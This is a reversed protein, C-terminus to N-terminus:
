ILFKSLFAALNEDLKSIRITKMALHIIRYQYTQVGKLMGEFKTNIIKITIGIDERIFTSNKLTM